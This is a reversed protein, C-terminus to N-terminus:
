LSTHIHCRSLLVLLLPSIGHYVGRFRQMVWFTYSVFFCVLKYWYWHQTVDHVNLSITWLCVQVYTNWEKENSFRVRIKFIRKCLILRTTPNRKTLLANVSGTSLIERHRDRNCKGVFCFLISLRFFYRCFVCCLSWATVNNIVSFNRYM